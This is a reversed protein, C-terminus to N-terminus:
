PAPPMIEEDDAEDEETETSLCRQGHLSERWTCLPGKGYSQRTRLALCSMLHIYLDEKNMKLHSM